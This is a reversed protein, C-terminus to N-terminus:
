NSKGYEGGRPHAKLYERRLRELDSHLYRQTTNISSHGAMAQVVRIDAGGNVTDTVFAHRFKHPSIPRGVVAKSIRTLLQWVRQRTLAHGRGRGGIFLVDTEPAGSLLKPRAERLYLDLANTEMENMPVLRDKQGKGCNVRVISHAIDLDCLRLAILESVRLGSGYAVYLIARDRIDRPTNTGLSGLLKDVEAGTIPRVIQQQVKPTHASRGVNRPLGNELYVFKYFGRIAYLKLRATQGSGGRALIAAIFNRIDDPTAKLLPKNIASRFQELATGYATITNPPYSREESLHRSFQDAWSGSPSYRGLSASCLPLTIDATTTTM